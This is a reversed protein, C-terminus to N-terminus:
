AWYKLLGSATLSLVGFMLHAMVKAAGRVRVQRGGLNDKLNSFTREVMTRIRYRVEKAPDFPIAERNRYPRTHIVAVKGQQEVFERIAQCDYGKDMLTYLSQVRQSTKKELPIAVQSDNTSASTLICSLPIGNDEVDMHLKYGFWHVTHGSSGRKAGADCATPLQLLMEDLSEHHQQEIRTRPQKVRVEGKKPRGAKYGTPLKRSGKRKGKKAKREIQERAKIETADRSVHGVLQEGLARRILVDHIKSPIQQESLERFANSFTGESPVSRPAEFGCIRRLMADVSLRDLLARTTALNLITKAVFSRAIALRSAPPRGQGGTAELFHRELRLVDLVMIIERHVDTMPGVTAEFEPFLVRQYRCWHRSLTELMIPSEKQSKNM